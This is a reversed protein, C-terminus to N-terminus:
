ALKTTHVGGPGYAMLYMLGGVIALNKLANTLEGPGIHVLLTAIITFLILVGSALGVRKGIIIATGGVIKIIVGLWGAVIALPGLFSLQSAMFEAGGGVVLGAPTIAIAAALGSVLFLGGILVRGLITGKDRVLDRQGESLMLM